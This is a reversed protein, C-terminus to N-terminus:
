KLYKRKEGKSDALQTAMKHQGANNLSKVMDGIAASETHGWKPAKGALKLEIYKKHSKPVTYKLRPDEDDDEVRESSSWPVIVGGGPNSANFSDSDDAIDVSSPKKAVANAAKKTSKMALAGRSKRVKMAMKIKKAVM